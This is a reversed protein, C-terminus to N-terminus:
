GSPQWAPLWVSFRTGSHGSELEIRGGHQSIIERLISLGLGTGPMQSQRGAEGRFFPEFLLKQDEEHIGPGNDVVAFGSWQQGDHWQFQTYVAIRDGRVTYNVANSLLIGLARELQLSDGRIPPTDSEPFFELLVEHEDTFYRREKLYQKVMQTLDITEFSLAVHGKGMDAIAILEDVISSLRETERNLTFIYKDFKDPRTGLLAHYLKLNAIPTRIEHSINAIFEDKITAMRKLQQNVEELQDSHQEVRMELANNTAQLDTQIVNKQHVDSCTGVFGYLDGTDFFRPWATILYWRSKGDIGQLRVEVQFADQSSLATHYAEYFADEDGPHVLNVWGNRLLDDPEMGTFLCFASNVFKFSGFTDGIWILVPASNAIEEFRDEAETLSQNITELERQQGIIIQKLKQSDMDTVPQDSQYPTIDYAELLLRTVTGDPGFEPTISFDLQLPEGDPRDIQLVDRVTAGSAAQQVGDYIRNQSGNVAAVEWVPQGVMETNGMLFGQQLSQNAELLVGDLSLRGLYAFSEPLSGAPQHDAATTQESLANIQMRASIQPAFVSIYAGLDENLEFSDQWAVSVLGVWRLDHDALPILTLGHASEVSFAPSQKLKRSDPGGSPGLQPYHAWLPPTRHLGRPVEDRFAYVEGIPWDGPLGAQLILRRPWGRENHEVHWLLVHTATGATLQADLLPEAFTNLIDFDTQAAAFTRSVTRLLDTTLM